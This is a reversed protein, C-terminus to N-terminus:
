VIIRCSELVIDIFNEEIKQVFTAYDIDIVNEDIRGIGLIMLSMDLCDQISKALCAQIDVDLFALERDTVTNSYMPLMRVVKVNVVVEDVVNLAMVSLLWFM